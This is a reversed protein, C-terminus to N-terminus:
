NLLVFECRRNIDYEEEKCIGEKICHNKPQMEGYGISKVNENPIGQSVLYERVSKARKHSLSLNYEESGRCDTHAGIEIQMDTYKKMMEVVNDLEAAADPRINWKNFDFYIPNIKIQTKGDEVVIDKEADEYSELHLFIDKNINGENDTSFEVEYPVYLKRTGRIKYDSNNHIEFSYKADDKVIMDGISNNESDFLTVLSGPLLELSNKDQVLGTVYNKKKKTFRYIDDDGAGGSRNSSVYGTERAEDIVFGFDDKNSNIINSMNQVESFGDKTITSSFVDLGGLGLHGDSAFYLTNSESIFPFQERQATNIKDGLNYPTGYTGNENIDVAFLDFSGFTGPMDSSFYLQKEDPSLAPHMTSFENSNFPLETINSWITDTLQAKFIKLHTVKNKDRFKKGDVFSNRTFYMTKGDKTLIANSEHMKTNINSSLPEINVIDGLEDITGKFLDLYPQNNWDYLNGDTGRSSAFIVKNGKMSLGFDSNSSNASTKHLIYPREIQSNLKEFYEVTSVYDIELNNKKYYKKQLEDAEAFRDQAKLSQAYRFYYESQVENEYQKFLLSYWRSAIDMKGNYYYCDGLNQLVDKSKVEENEYLEAAKIYSRTEFLKNAKKLNQAFPTQISFLILFLYILKKM